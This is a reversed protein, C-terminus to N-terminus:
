QPRSLWWASAAIALSLMASRAASISASRRSLRSATASASAGRLLRRLLRGALSRDRPRQAGGLGGHGLGGGLVGAGVGGLEAPRPAAPAPRPASQRARERRPASWMAARVGRALTASGAAAYGGPAADAAAATGGLVLQHAQRARGVAPRSSATRRGAALPHGPAAGVETGSAPGRRRRGPRGPALAGGRRRERPRQARATDASGSSTSDTLRHALLPYVFDGLLVPEGALLQELLQVGGAHLRLGGGGRDLLGDRQLREALAGRRSPSSWRRSPSRRLAAAAAAAAAGSRRRGGGCALGAAFAAALAGRLRAAALAFRGRRGPPGGGRGSGATAGAAPRRAGGGSGRWSRGLARPPGRRPRRGSLQGPAARRRALRGDPAAASRARRGAGLADARRAVRAGALARGPSTPGPPRRRTTISECAERRWCPPGELWGWRRGRRPRRRRPM